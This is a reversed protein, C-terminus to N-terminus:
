MVDCVVEGVGRFNKMPPNSFNDPFATRGSNDGESTTKIPTTTRVVTILKLLKSHAM